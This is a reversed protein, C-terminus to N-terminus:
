RWSRAWAEADALQLLRAFGLDRAPGPSLAGEVAARDIVRNAALLGDLLFPRLLGAREEVLAAMFGTPTGKARRGTVLSPLRPAFARRVPTRNRGEAFWMWSPVRLAAEAVPQSVLPSVLLPQREADPSEVVATAALLLGVQAAKGPPVGRPPVLWPHVPEFHEIRDVDLLRRDIPWRYPRRRQVARLAARHLVAIVSVNAMRAISAATALAEGLPARSWLADIVPTAGQLSCFMNDGGGGDLVAAAGIRGALADAAALTAQRFQAGTPRPLWGSLPQALDVHSPDRIAEHVDVGLHAAVARAYEREDGQRDAVVMTLCAFARRRAALSAAVVSSDLGGSLLVVSKGDAASHGAVALDIAAGVTASAADGTVFRRRECAWDWPSWCPTVEVHERSVSLLQGGGLERINSLCTTGTRLDTAALFETLPQWDPATGVGFSNLLRISSALAVHDRGEHWYCPLAGFPARLVARPHERGLAGIAVYSGWHREVLERVPDTGAVLRDYADSSLPADEGARCLWGLLLFRSPGISRSAAVMIGRGITSIVLGQAEALECFRSREEPNFWGPKSLWAAFVPPNM